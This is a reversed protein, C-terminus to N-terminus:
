KWKSLPRLHSIDHVIKQQDIWAEFDDLDILVKRGIRRVCQDFGNRHENFILWRLSSEKIDADAYLSAVTRISALRKLAKSKATLETNEIQKYASGIVTENQPSPTTTQDNIM